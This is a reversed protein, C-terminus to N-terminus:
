EDHRTARSRRCKNRGKRAISWVKLRESVRVAVLVNSVGPTRPTIPIPRTLVGVSAMTQRRSSSIRLQCSNCWIRPHPPDKCLSSHRASGLNYEETRLDLEARPLTPDGGRAMQM